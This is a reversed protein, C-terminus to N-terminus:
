QDDSAPDSATSSQEVGIGAVQVGNKHFGTQRDIQHLTQQTPVAAVFSAAVVSESVKTGRVRTARSTTIVTCLCSLLGGLHQHLGAPPIVVRTVRLDLVERSCGM